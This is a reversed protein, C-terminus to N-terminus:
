LPRNPGLADLLPALNAAHHRWRAIASTYVPRRVQNVSATRVVRKSNHFDLCAPDWDLGLFDTLRRAETETSGVLTEYDLEIFHTAPLVRRWHDMLGLYHNTFAGLEALNYAFPQDGSFLKSYISLGTDAPNRRIHIIRAGPLALRILGLHLFNAPMKDVLHRHGGAITKASKLYQAGLSAFQEGTLAPASKPYGAIRDAIRQAFKLEGAGKIAPHAALIQEVLTTGSRPMGVVFVPLTSGATPARSLLGADFAKAIRAMWQGTAHPDFAITERKLRNARDLHAFAQDSQGLDLYAKGLAFSLLMVEHRSLAETDALLAEMTAIEPADATFRVLDARNFWANASRPFATVATEFAAEADTTRGHEMFLVARNILVREAVAGPLSLAREYAALAADIQGLGQLVLGHANHLEAHHPHRALGRELIMLAEELQDAQRFAIARAAIGPAHDPAISLLRDLWQAAAAHHHRATEANALTIYAEILKPNLTLARQAAAAAAGHRGQENLLIALNAHVEPYDPRLQLARAWHREAQQRQGMRKLTNALNNHVDARDGSLKLARVLSARSETLQGTEQQIIGLNNWAGPLDPKLAVARRAVAEGQALLGAQRYLEALNSLVLAPAAPSAAVKALYGIAEDLAGERHALLGRQHLAEIHDPALALAKDLLNRAQRLRGAALEAQAQRLVQEIGPPSQTM